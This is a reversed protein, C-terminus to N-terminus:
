KNHCLEHKCKDEIVKNGRSGVSVMFTVQKLSCQKTVISGENLISDLIGFQKFLTYM